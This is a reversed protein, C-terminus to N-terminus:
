RIFKYLGDRNCYLYIYKSHRPNVRCQLEWEPYQKYIQVSNDSVTAIFSIYHNKTMEHKTEIYLQDEVNSIEIMHSIIDESFEADKKRLNVTVPELPSLSVGCCSIVAEGVSSIINGCIPCVYFNTKLLNSNVNSNSIENGSMLEILSVGLANALDSLLSVDPYGRGTEWKSITKDSVNLKNALEIQTLSKSERLRKITDGSVYNNM